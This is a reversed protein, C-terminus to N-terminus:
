RKAKKGNLPNVSIRAVISETLIVCGGTIGMRIPLAVCNVIINADFM